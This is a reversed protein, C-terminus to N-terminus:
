CLYNYRKYLVGWFSVGRVQENWGDAIDTVFCVESVGPRGGAEVLGCSSSCPSTWWTPLSSYQTSLVGGQCGRWDEGLLLSISNGLPFPFRLSSTHTPPTASEWVLDLGRLVGSFQRKLGSNWRENEWIGCFGKPPHTSPSVCIPFSLFFGHSPPLCQRSDFFYIRSYFSFNLM